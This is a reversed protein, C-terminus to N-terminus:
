VNNWKGLDLDIYLKDFFINYLLETRLRPEIENKFTFQFYCMDM